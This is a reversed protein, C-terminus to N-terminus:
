SSKVYEKVDSIKNEELYDLNFKVNSLSYEAGVENYNM